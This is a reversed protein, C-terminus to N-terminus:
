VSTEKKRRTFFNRITQRFGRRKQTQVPRPTSASRISRVPSASKAPKSESLPRASKTQTELLPEYDDTFKMKVSIYRPEIVGVFYIDQYSKDGIRTQQKYDATLNIERSMDAPIEIKLYVYDSLWGSFGSAVDENIAIYMKGRDYYKMGDSRDAGSLGGYKSHLGNVRINELHSKPIVKYMTLQGANVEFKPFNLPIKCDDYRSYNYHAYLPTRLFVGDPLKILREKEISAKRSLYVEEMLTDREENEPMKLIEQFIDSVQQRNDGNFRFFDNNLIYKCIEDSTNNLEYMLQRYGPVQKLTVDEEEIEYYSPPGIIKKGGKKRYNRKKTKYKKRRYPKRSVM